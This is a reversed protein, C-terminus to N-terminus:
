NCQRQMSSCKKGEKNRQCPNIESATITAFNAYSLNIFFVFTNFSHFKLNVIKHQAYQFHSNYIKGNYTASIKYVNAANLSDKFM